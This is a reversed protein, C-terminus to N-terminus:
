NRHPPYPAFEGPESFPAAAADAATGTSGGLRGEQVEGDFIFAACPM